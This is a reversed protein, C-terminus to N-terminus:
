AWLKRWKRFSCTHFCTIFLCKGVIKAHVNPTSANNPINDM